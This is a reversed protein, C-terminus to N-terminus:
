FEYFLLPWARDRQLLEHFRQGAEAAADGGAEVSDALMRLEAIRKAVERDALALFLEQKGAFNSYVAGTSFGAEAAIEEVSAQQYGRRAFVRAAAELLGERTQEQRERRTLVNAM